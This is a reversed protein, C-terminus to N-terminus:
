KAKGKVSGRKTKAVNQAKAVGAYENIRKGDNEKIDCLLDEWEINQGDIRAFITYKESGYFASAEQHALPRYSTRVIELSYGNNFCWEQVTRYGDKSVCKLCFKTYITIVKM